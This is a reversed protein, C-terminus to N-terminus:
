PLPFHMDLEEESMIVSYIYRQNEIYEAYNMGTDEKEKITEPFLKKILEDIMEGPYVKLGCGMIEGNKNCHLNRKVIDWYPLAYQNRPICMCTVIAVVLDALQLAPNLHSQTTLLNMVINNPKVYRTGNALFQYYRGLLEKNELGSSPYDAIIIGNKDKHEQLFFQFRETVFEICKWKDDVINQTLNDRRLVAVIIKGNFLGILNLIDSYALIRDEYKLNQVLWSNEPPHWKIEEQSPIGRLEKKQQFLAFLNKLNDDHLIVGGVGIYQRNFQETDDIFLINM